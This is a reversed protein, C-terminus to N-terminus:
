WRRSRMCADYAKSVRGSKNSRTTVSINLDAFCCQLLAILFSQRRNPTPPNDQIEVQSQFFITMTTMFPPCCHLTFSIHSDCLELGMQAGLDPAHAFTLRDRYDIM